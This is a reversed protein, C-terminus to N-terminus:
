SKRLNLNFSKLELKEVLPDIEKDVYILICMTANGERSRNRRQRKAQHLLFFTYMVVFIQYLHYIDRWFGGLGNDVCGTVLSIVLSM